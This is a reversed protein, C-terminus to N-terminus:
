ADIRSGPKSRSGSCRISRATVSSPPPPPSWISTLRPTSRLACTGASVNRTISRSGDGPAVAAPSTPTSSSTWITTKPPSSSRWTTTPACPSREIRALRGLLRDLPELPETPADARGPDLGGGALNGSWCRFGPLSQIMATAPDTMTRDVTAFVDSLQTPFAPVTAAPQAPPKVWLTCEAPGDTVPSCTGDDEPAKDIEWEDDFASKVESDANAGEDLMCSPFMPSESDLMAFDDLSVGPIHRPRRRQQVDVIVDRGTRAAAEQQARMRLLANLPSMDGAGPATTTSNTNDRPPTWPKPAQISGTTHRRPRVLRSQPNRVPSATFAKAIAECTTREPTSGGNRDYISVLFEREAQTFRFGASLVFLDPPSVGQFPKTKRLKAVRRSSGVTSTGLSSSRASRPNPPCREEPTRPPRPPRSRRRPTRSLSPSLPPAPRRPPPRGPRGKAFGLAPNSGTSRSRQSANAGPGEAGKKAM